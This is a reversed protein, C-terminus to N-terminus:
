RRARRSGAGRVRRPRWRRPSPAIDARGAAHPWNPRHRHRAAVTLAEAQSSREASRRGGGESSGWALWARRGSGTGEARARPQRHAGGAIDGDLHLVLGLRHEAGFLVIDRDLRDRRLHPAELDLRSVRGIDGPQDLVVPLGVPGGAVHRAIGDERRRHRRAADGEVLADLVPQDAVGERGEPARGVRGELDAVPDLLPQM